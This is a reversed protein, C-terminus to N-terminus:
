IRRTLRACRLDTELRIHLAPRELSWLAPAEVRVQQAVEVTQGAAVTFPSEARGAERGSGDLVVPRLRGRREGTGDNVIRARIAVQATASDAEPTTVYTRWHGIHLPSTVALWVHRYIGSGSYWRSNPQRSNDVRVAVVNAGERLHPTQDYQFSVYGNPRSGLHHGNIWVDSNQYVGDFEITVRRGRWARPMTFSRRYWGIGTPRSGGRGTTAAASDYPGEISWDHPLDVARWSGDDFAPVEAGAHDGTTFASGYDMLLRQRSSSTQTVAPGAAACLLLLLLRCTM